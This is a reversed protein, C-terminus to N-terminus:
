NLNQLFLDEQKLMQHVQQQLVQNKPIFILLIQKNSNLLTQSQTSEENDNEFILGNNSNGTSSSLYRTSQFVFTRFSRKQSEIWQRD